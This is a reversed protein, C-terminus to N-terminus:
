QNITLEMEIFNEKIEPKMNSTLLVPYKTSLEVNNNISFQKLTFIILPFRLEDKYILNLEKLHIYYFETRKTKKYSIVSIGLSKINLNVKFCKKSPLVRM